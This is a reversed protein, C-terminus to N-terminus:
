GDCEDTTETRRAPFKAQWRDRLLGDLHEQFTTPMDMAANRSYVSITKRLNDVVLECVPCEELHRQIIAAMDPDIDGDVYEILATFLDDCEM